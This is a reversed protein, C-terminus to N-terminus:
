GCDFCSKAILYNRVITCHTGKAIRLKLFKLFLSFNWTIFSGERSMLVRGGPSLFFKAVNLQMIGQLPLFLNHITWIQTHPLGRKCCLTPQNTHLLPEAQLILLEMELFLQIIKFCKINDVYISPERATEM